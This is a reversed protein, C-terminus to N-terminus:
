HLCVVTETKRLKWLKNINVESEQMKLTIRHDTALLKHVRDVLEQNYSMKQRGSHPDSKV